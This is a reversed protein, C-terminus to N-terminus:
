SGYRVKMIIGYIIHLLGFGVSWFLLGYGIFYMALLGLLIELIGLSRLESFTYKSANVLALGYFILTLPAVYGIYGKLLFMLCLVGGTVLPILLNLLLRKTQMDWLNQNDKKAKRTTFFIGFGVTLSITLVAILLLTTLNNSSLDAQRYGLYDQGEYVTLYAIYAGALACIGAAVGSLGSLSIFRSSRNMIDKIDKLDDLYKQQDM